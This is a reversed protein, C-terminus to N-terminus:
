NVPKPFRRVCDVAPKAPAVILDQLIPQTFAPRNEAGDIAQSYAASQRLLAEARVRRRMAPSLDTGEVKVPPKCLWNLDDQDLIFAYDNITQEMVQRQEAVTTKTSAFQMLGVWASGEALFDRIDPSDKRNRAEDILAKRASAARSVDVRGASANEYWWILSEHVAVLAQDRATSTGLDKAAKFAADARNYERRRLFVIAQRVRLAGNLAKQDPHQAIFDEIQAAPDQEGTREGPTTLQPDPFRSALLTANSDAVIKKVQAETACGALLLVLVGIGAWNLYRRIRQTRGDM